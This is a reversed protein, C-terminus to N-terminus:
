YEKRNNQVDDAMPFAAKQVVSYKNLIRIRRYYSLLIKLTALPHESQMNIKELSDLEMFDPLKRSSQIVFDLQERALEIEKHKVDIQMLKRDRMGKHISTYFDNIREGSKAVVDIVRGINFAVSIVLGLEMWGPSAYRISQVTPRLRKPVQAGLQNYFNVASFGGRWPFSSFTHALREADEEDRELIFACNFAYVQAYVHPFEYFDNLSWKGDISIRYLGSFQPDIM